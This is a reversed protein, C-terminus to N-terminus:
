SIEISRAAKVQAEERKPLRVNLIGNEYHASIKETDVSEPLTFTRTFSNLRFERRTYNPKAEESRNELSASITLTDKEVHLNFDSKNLGPAVLEIAFHYASDLVNVAPRFANGGNNFVQEDFPRALFEDFATFFPALETRPKKIRVLNM